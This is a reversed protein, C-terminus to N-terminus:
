PKEKRNSSERRIFDEVAKRVLWGVPREMKKGIEKLTEITKKDLWISFRQLM